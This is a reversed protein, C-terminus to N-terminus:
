FRTSCLVGVGPQDNCMNVEPPCTRGDYRCCRRFAFTDAIVPAMALPCTIHARRVRVRMACTIGLLCLKGNSQKSGSGPGRVVKSYSLVFTGIGSMAHGIM